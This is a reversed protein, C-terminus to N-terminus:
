VLPSRVLPPGGTSLYKDDFSWLRQQLLVRYSPHTQRSSEMTNEKEYLSLKFTNEDFQKIHHYVIMTNLYLKIIAIECGM